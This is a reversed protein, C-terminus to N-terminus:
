FLLHSSSQYSLTGNASFNMATGEDCVIRRLVTNYRWKVDPQMVLGGSCEGEYKVLLAM